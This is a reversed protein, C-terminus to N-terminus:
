NVRYIFFEGQENEEGDYRALFHGRGDASIADNLCDELNAGLMSKILPTAGECLKEQTEKLCEEFAEAERRSMDKYCPMWPILFSANFAWLSEIMENHCRDDAEEDTLVLYEQSGIEFLCDDYETPEISSICDGTFDSLAKIREQTNM